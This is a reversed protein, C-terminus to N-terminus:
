SREKHSQPNNSNYFKDEAAKYRQADTRILLNLHAALEWTLPTQDGAVSNAISALVDAARHISYRWQWSQRRGCPHIVVLSAVRVGPRWQCPRVTANACAM